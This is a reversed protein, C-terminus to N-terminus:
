WQGPLPIEFADNGLDTIFYMLFCTLYKPIVVSFPIVKVIVLQLIGNLKELQQDPKTYIRKSTPHVLGLCVSMDLFWLDLVFCIFVLWIIESKNVASELDNIFRYLKPIEWFIIGYSYICIFASSFAFFADVYEEFSNAESYGFVGTSILDLGLVLFFLLNRFKLLDKRSSQSSTIGSIEFYHRITDFTKMKRAISYESDNKLSLHKSINHVHVLVQFSM